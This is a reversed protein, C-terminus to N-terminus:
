EEDGVGGGENIKLGNKVGLVEGSVGECGEVMGM